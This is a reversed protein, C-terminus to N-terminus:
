IDYFWKMALSDRIWRFQPRPVEFNSVVHMLLANSHGQVVVDETPRTAIVKCWVYCLEVQWWVCPSRKLPNARGPPQLDRGVAALLFEVSCQLHANWRRPPSMKREFPNYPVPAQLWGSPPLLIAYKPALHSQDLRTGRGGDELRM